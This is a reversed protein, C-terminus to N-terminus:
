LSVPISPSLLTSILNSAVFLWAVVFVWRGPHARLWERVLTLSHNPIRAGLTSHTLGAEIIWLACILGVLSRYLTVKPVAFGNEMLAPSVFMLPVFFVTLLWLLEM